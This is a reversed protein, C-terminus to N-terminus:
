SSLCFVCLPDTVAETYRDRRIFNSETEGWKQKEQEQSEERM